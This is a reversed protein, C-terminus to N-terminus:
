STKIIVAAVNDKGGKQNASEIMKKLAEEPPNAMALDMIEFDRLEQYLGDTCLIFLDGSKPTGAALQVEVDPNVGVARTLEHESISSFHEVFDIAPTQSTSGQAISTHDHTLQQIQGRRVLYIRSDGVNALYVKGETFWAASLTTCMGALKPDSRAKDYIKRNVERVAFKLARAPLPVGQAYEFPPTADEDLNMDQLVEALLELALRSAVEGASEAEVGDAVAYLGLKDEALYNDENRPRKRGQHKMGASLYPM